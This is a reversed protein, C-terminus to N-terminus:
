QYQELAILLYWCHSYVTVTCLLSLLSRAASATIVHVVYL